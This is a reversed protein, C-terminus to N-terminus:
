DRPSPSTYLLCCWPSWISHGIFGDACEGALECLRERLAAIWVPVRRADAAFTPHLGEFSLQYHTGDYDAISPSGTVAADNVLRFIEIVERLRSIPPSFDHGFAEETWTRPATGLGLTFRGNSIQDLELAACATEFPSRVFAM